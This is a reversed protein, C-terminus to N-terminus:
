LAKWQIPELLAAMLTACWPMSQVMVTWISVTRLLISLSIYKLVTFSVLDIYHYCVEQNVWDPNPDYFFALSTMQVNLKVTSIINVPHVADPSQPNNGIAYTNYACNNFFRAFTNNTMKLVGDIM